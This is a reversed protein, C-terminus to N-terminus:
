LSFHPITDGPFVKTYMPVLTGRASCRCGARGRAAEPNKDGGPGECASENCINDLM